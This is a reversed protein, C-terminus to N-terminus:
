GDIHDTHTAKSEALDEQRNTNQLELTTFFGDINAIPFQKRGIDNNVACGLYSLTSAYVLGFHNQCFRLLLHTPMVDYALVEVLARAVTSFLTPEIIGWM